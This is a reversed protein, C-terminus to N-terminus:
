RETIVAVQRAIQVPEELAEAVDSLAAPCIRAIIDSKAHNRVSGHPLGGAAGWM